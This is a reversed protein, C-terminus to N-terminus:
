TMPISMCLYMNKKFQLFYNAIFQRLFQRLQLFDLIIANINIPM